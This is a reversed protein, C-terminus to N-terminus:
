PLIPVNKRQEKAKKIKKEYKDIIIQAGNFNKLKKLEKETYRDAM